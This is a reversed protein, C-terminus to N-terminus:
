DTQEPQAVFQWIRWNNPWCHDNLPAPRAQSYLHRDTPHTRANPSGSKGSGEYMAIRTKFFETRPRYSTLTVGAPRPIEDLTDPSGKNM